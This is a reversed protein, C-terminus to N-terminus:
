FLVTLTTVFCYDTNTAGFALEAAGGDVFRRRCFSLHTSLGEFVKALVFVLGKIVAGILDPLVLVDCLYGSTSASIRGLFM